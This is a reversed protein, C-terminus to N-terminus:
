DSKSTDWAEGLGKLRPGLDILSVPILVFCVQDDHPHHTKRIMFMCKPYHTIYDDVDEAGYPDDELWYFSAHSHTHRVWNLPIQVEEGTEDFVKGWGELEYDYKLAKETFGM